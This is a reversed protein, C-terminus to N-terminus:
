GVSKKCLWIKIGAVETRYEKVLSVKSQEILGLMGNNNLYSRFCNYHGALREDLHLFARQFWLEPECLDAILLTDSTESYRKIIKLATSTELAHLFLSCVTITPNFTICDAATLADNLIFQLNGIGSARVKKIAFNIMRKDLDIGVAKNIRYAIEFLFRGNACGVDVVDSKDPILGSIQKRLDNLARDTIQNRIWLSLM